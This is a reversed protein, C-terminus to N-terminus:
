FQFVFQKFVIQVIQLQLVAKQYGVIQLEGFSHVLLPYGSFMDDSYVALRGHM